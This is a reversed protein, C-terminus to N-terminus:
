APPSASLLELLEERTFTKLADGDAGVVAEMLSRKREIMRHIREELTGRTALKFVQVGRSQGIRHVRDTAQDERAANWWRDYHIVVTAATLDIGLGGALLSGLFVRCEPRQQFTQIIRGRDRTDGRLTVHGIGRGAVHEAMLELMELYQSFVVVKQGSSLAEELLEQFLAFKGSSLKRVRTGPLVLAPHDCIRKLRTLLAFIHIYDIPRSADRLGEVLAGAQSLASRYLAAQHASLRCWRVDEMKPPLEALVEAKLRRLKFPDVLRRLYATAAEDAREVIPREFRRRFTEASGLYGPQLFEMISWLEMPRNELPTGTLAVRYHARLRRVARAMRTAPNKIKQAEDLVITDWEIAEFQATERVLITYTTLVVPPLRESELTRPRDLGHMRLSDLSPAYRRLKDEWHDLVSTPCVVLHPAGRARRSQEPSALGPSGDSAGRPAVDRGGTRQSEVSPGGWAESQGSFDSRSKGPETGSISRMERSSASRQPAGHRPPLPGGGGAQASAAGVIETLAERPFPVRSSAALVAMAQHTKGLGMEDALLGHFGNQRLWWLWRYGGQQYPRLPAMLGDLAPPEEPPRVREILERFARVQESEELRLGEHDWGAKAKLYQLRSLRVRGQADPKAGGWAHHLEDGDPVRIWDAGRRLFRRGEEQAQLIERLAVDHDAALYRPECWLWDPGELELTVHSVVPPALIRTRRVAESPRFAVEQCLRQYHTGFFEAVADGEFVQPAHNAFHTWLRRPIAAIPYLGGTSPEPDGQALDWFWREGVRGAELQQHSLLRRPVKGPAAPMEYRPEVVLRGQADYDAVLVPQVFQGHIRVAKAEGVWQLDTAYSFQAVFDPVEDRPMEFTGHRGPPDTELSVRLTRRDDSLFVAARLSGAANFFEGALSWTMPMSVSGMAERWQSLTPNPPFSMWAAGQRLFPRLRLRPTPQQHSQGQRRGEAPPPLSAPPRWSPAPEGVDQAVDPFNGDRKFMWALLIALLHKCPAAWQQAYPCSCRWQLKGPALERCETQYPQRRTGQVWASILGHHADLRLVRKEFVYSEARRLAYRGFKRYVDRECVHKLPVRLPLASWPPGGSM